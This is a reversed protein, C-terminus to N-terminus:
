KSKTIPLKAEKWEKLSGKLRYVKKFGEDALKKAALMSNDDNDSYILYIKDKNWKKFTKDFTGNKVPFNIANVLHEKSFMSSVDIIIISPNDKIFKATDKPLLETYNPVVTAKIVTTAKTNTVLPKTETKTEVVVPKSEVVVPKVETTVKTETKEELIVPKSETVIPKIETKTETFTPTVETSKKTEVAVVKTENPKKSEQKPNSTCAVFIFISLVSFIIFKRM